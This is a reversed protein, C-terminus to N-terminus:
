NFGKSGLQEDLGKFKGAALVKKKTKADVLEASFEGEITKGAVKTFNVFGSKSGSKGSVFEGENPTTKYDADMMSRGAIVWQVICTGGSGETPFKQVAKPLPCIISMRDAFGKPPPYAGFGKTRASISVSSNTPVVTIGDNDSEFSKGDFTATFTQQAHLISSAFVTAFIAACISVLKISKMKM